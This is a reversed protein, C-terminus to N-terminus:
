QLLKFTEVMPIKEDEIGVDRRDVEFDVVASIEHNFDNNVSSPTEIDIGGTNQHSLMPAHWRGRM